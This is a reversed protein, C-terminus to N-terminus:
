YKCIYDNSRVVENFNLSQPDLLAFIDTYVKSVGCNTDTKIKTLELQFAFCLKSIFM